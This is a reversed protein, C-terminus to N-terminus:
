NLRLCKSNQMKEAFKQHIKKRIERWIGSFLASGVLAAQANDSRRDAGILEDCRKQLTADLRLAFKEVHQRVDAVRLGREENEAQARHWTRVMQQSGQWWGFGQCVAASVILLESAGYTTLTSPLYPGAGGSARNSSGRLAWALLRVIAVPSM